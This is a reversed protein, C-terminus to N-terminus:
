RGQEREYVSYVSPVAPAKEGHQRQVFDDLQGEDVEGDVARKM